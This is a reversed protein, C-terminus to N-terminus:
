FFSCGCNSNGVDVGAKNSDSSYQMFSISIDIDNVCGKSKVNLRVYSNDSQYTTILLKGFQANHLDKWTVQLYSCTQALRHLYMCTDNKEIIEVIEDKRDVFKVICTKDLKNWTQVIWHLDICTDNKRLLTM